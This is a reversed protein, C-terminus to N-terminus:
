FLVFEFIKIIASLWKNNNAKNADMTANNNEMKPMKDQKWFKAEAASVEWLMMNKLCQQRYEIIVISIGTDLRSIPYWGYQNWGSYSFM